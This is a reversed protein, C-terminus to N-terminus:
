RYRYLKLRQIGFDDPPIRLHRGQHSEDGNLLRGPVWRGGVFRGEWISEIGAIPPGPSIPTMELVVGSGAALYEEPGLQILLGGHAITQQEGKPIWPDIFSVEFQFDGLRITQPSDDVKGEYSVVPAFGRVRGQGQNALLTPALEALVAYARTLRGAREEPLTDISFPSVGLAGYEGIAFFASAGAQPLRAHNAEPIFLANDSRAYHRVWESFNPFYIDPALFDLSPAAVKWVDLLHPLPGGSPYEGPRKGPRNLAANTYMPLAYAGKGAATVADVYRALHYATFVEEGAPGSGFLQAWTGSRKAGNAEWLQRLAPVLTSRHSILHDVLPQPVPAAFRRNAEAGHERATPLMAVENEVQIMLVTSNAGDIAKLHKMLAGFAQSDARQNAESFASLIEVGAGTQVQARPFRAADRKVWSPVYSSMSNKWSGFWLLVLRMGHARAQRLLGDVSSFDFRGELPEILEWSVPALVTNLHMKQFRAWAPELFALSSSSSNALEGGLMLFPRGDVLLQTGQGQGRLAPPVAQAGGSFAAFGFLLLGALARPKRSRHHHRPTQSM